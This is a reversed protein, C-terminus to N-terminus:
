QACKAQAKKGKMKEYIKEAQETRRDNTRRRCNLLGMWLLYVVRMRNDKAEKTKVSIKGTKAKETHKPQASQQKNDGDDRIAAATMM